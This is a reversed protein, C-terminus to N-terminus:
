AAAPHIGLFSLERELQQHNEFRIATLGVARGAEVLEPRDDIYVVEGAPVGARELALQYIAADPKRLGVDCSAIWDDFVALSPISFRLFALHLANTNTLAMIRHHRHLGRLLVTVDRNEQFINNWAWIFQEFAWPLPLQRKLGEYYAQPSIRGLEFPLLLDKHYVVAQVEDFPRGILQAMQHVLQDANFEVVVGGIDSLILPYAM